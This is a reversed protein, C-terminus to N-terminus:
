SGSFYISPDLDRGGPLTQLSVVVQYPASPNYFTTWSSRGPGLLRFLPDGAAITAGDLALVETVASLTGPRYIIKRDSGIISIYPYFPLTPVNSGVRVESDILQYVRIEVTGAFPAVFTRDADTVVVGVYSRGGSRFSSLALSAPKASPTETASAAPRPTATPSAEPAALDSLVAAQAAPNPSTIVSTGIATLPPLAIGLDGILVLRGVGLLAIASVGSALAVAAIRLLAHRV